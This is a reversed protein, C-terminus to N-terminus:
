VPQFSPDTAADILLPGAGAIGRKLAAIFDPITEVRV